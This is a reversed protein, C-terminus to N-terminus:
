SLARHVILLTNDIFNCRSPLVQLSFTLDPFRVQWELVKRQFKELDCSRIDEIIYFGNERLKHISNEFFCVNAEFLHLGDEVIIDFPEALSETSWMEAISSPNTQDCYFTRIRDNEFLIRRDIDAGFVQALPFYERWGFLSAGPRGTPGMSSAVDLYNTGIGLEFVRLPEDRRSKFLENYVVTYNHKCNVIDEHGKDSRNSGMIRCLDTARAFNFTGHESSTHSM